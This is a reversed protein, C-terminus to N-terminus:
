AHRAFRDLMALCTQIGIPTNPRTELAIIMQGIEINCKRGFHRIARSVARITQRDIPEDWRTILRFNTFEELPKVTHPFHGFLPRYRVVRPRKTPSKTSSLVSVGHILYLRGTWHKYIGPQIM